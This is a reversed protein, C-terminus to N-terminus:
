YTYNFSVFYSRGLAPQGHTYEWERDTLNKVGCKFLLSKSAEYAVQTDVLYYSSLQYRTSNYIDDRKGVHLFSAMFKTKSNIEITDQIFLKSAPIQVIKDDDNDRADIYSLSLEIDQKDFSFNNVNFEIGNIDVEEKNVFSNGEYVIMDSIKNKYLSINLLTDPIFGLSTGIEINDSKEPKVGTNPTDWPFYPFLERLSAFRNKRALSIYYSQESNLIYNTTLQLDIAANDKYDEESTTNFDFVETLYQKKLKTSLSLSLKDTMKYDHKYSLSTDIAENNKDIPNNYEKQKHRNRDVKLTYTGSHKDDYKDNLSVLAGLRSDYYTSTDFKLSKFNPTNYFLFIDTYEDYYARIKLKTENGKYDYYFWYSTLKKDDIRTYDANAGFANSPEDYVQVPNGYKGNVHSIKFAIDSNSNLTYGVKLSGDFQAKDSNVRNKDSQINTTEFSNPLRFSNQKLGNLDLKFYYDDEKQSISTNIYMDNTSLTTNIFAHLGNKIKKSTIYIDGGTASPAYLGQAGGANIEITSSNAHYMSLDTFGNSTRYLEIGDEYYNTARFNNARISIVKSNTSDPQQNVIVNNFLKQDLTQENIQTEQEITKIQPQFLKDEVTIKELVETASLVSTIVLLM